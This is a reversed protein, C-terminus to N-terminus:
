DRGESWHVFCNIRKYVIVTQVSPTHSMAEDAIDKLKIEKNGRYSGDSTIVLKCESDNIRDSLANASFGGFVVSHIAGIRACALVAIALEPLMPMYICVRDGKQVGNNKLVNAFQCVKSHLQKYTITVGSDNPDNPEWIIAPKDGQKELHRDLANETINTTGGAFWKVDHSVFDWDLVKDWTKHRVFQEAQEAWFGEPDKTSRAYEKKYQSFSKIVNSM